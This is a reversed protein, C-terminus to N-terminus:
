SRTIVASPWAVATMAPTGTEAAVLVARTVMTLVLAAGIVIGVEVNWVSLPVTVVVGVVVVVAM